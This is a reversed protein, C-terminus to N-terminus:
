SSQTNRSDITHEKNYEKKFPLGVVCVKNERLYFPMKM